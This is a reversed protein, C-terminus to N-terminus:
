FDPVRGPDGRGRGLAVMDINSRLAFSCKRRGLTGKSPTSPQDGMSAGPAGGGGSVGGGGAGGGAGGGLQWQQEQKQERVRREFMARRWQLVAHESYTYSKAVIEDLQPARCV